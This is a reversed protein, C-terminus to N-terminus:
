KVVTGQLTYITGNKEIYMIGDHCVKIAPSSVQTGTAEELGTTTGYTFDITKLVYTKGGESLINASLTYTNGSKKVIYAKSGSAAYDDNVGRSVKTWASLTGGYSHTGEFSENEVTIYVTHKIGNDNTATVTFDFGNMTQEVDVKSPTLNITTNSEDYGFEIGAGGNDAFHYYKTEAIRKKGTSAHYDFDQIAVILTGGHFSYNNGGKDKIQITSLSDNALYRTTSKSGVIEKM